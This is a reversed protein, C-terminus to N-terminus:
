GKLIRNVTAVSIGYVEAIDRQSLGKSSLKKVFDKIGIKKAAKDVEKNNKNNIAAELEELIENQIRQIMPGVPLPLDYLAISSALDISEVNRGFLLTYETIPM